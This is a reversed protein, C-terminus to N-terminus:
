GEVPINEEKKKGKERKSPSLMMSMMKGEMYASKDLAYPTNLETLKFLIKDLVEKGLEPHIATRGKFRISVKVKNGSQLFESIAKSKTLIDGDAVKSQMRVEKLKTVVQNKKAEKQKKELEYKYKGIDLIKCVPPNVNPSVEVLDLGEEEALNLAEEISVVGKKTGDNDILFVERSHIENNTRLDKTAM